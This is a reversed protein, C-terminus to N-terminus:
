RIQPTSGRSAKAQKVQRSIVREIKRDLLDIVGTASTGAPIKMDIPMHINFTNSEKHISITIIPPSARSAQDHLGAARLMAAVDVPMQLMGSELAGMLEARKAAGAAKAAKTIEKLPMKDAAARQGALIEASQVQEEIFQEIRATAADKKHKDKEPTPVDLDKRLENLEKRQSPTLKHTPIQELARLRVEKEHRQRLEDEAKQDEKNQRELEQRAEAEERKKENLIDDLVGLTIRMADLNGAESERQKRLETPDMYEPVKMVDGRGIHKTLTRGTAVKADGAIARDYLDIKGQTESIANAAIKRQEELFSRDKDEYFGRQVSFPNQADERTMEVVRAAEERFRATQKELQGLRFVYLSAVAAVAGFAINMSNLAFALGQVETKTAAVAINFGTMGAKAAIFVAAAGYPGGFLDIVGKITRGLVKFVGLVDELRRRMEQLFGAVDSESLEEILDTVGEIADTLANAIVDALGGDEEGLLETVEHLLGKYAELPGREAITNAWQMWADKMNSVAGKATNMQDAMATMLKPHKLGLEEFYRAIATANADIHETNENFTVAIKDGEKRAIIGFERLRVFEFTMADAVAEVFMQMRESTSMTANGLAAAINGFGQLTRMTPNVGVIALRTFAQTLVDVEFPMKLAEKRIDGLVMKATEMDGVATKLSATYSEMEAGTQIISKAGSMAAATAGASALAGVITVRLLSFVRNLKNAGKGIADLSELHHKRAEKAAKKAADEQAKAVKKASNIQEKEARKAERIVADAAKKAERAEKAAKKEAAKEAREKLKEASEAAKKEAAKDVKFSFETILEDVVTAM